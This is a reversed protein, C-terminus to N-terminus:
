EISRRACWAYFGQYVSNAYHEAFRRLRSGLLRRPLLLGVLVLIGIELQATDFAFFPDPPPTIGNSRLAFLLAFKVVVLASLGTGITLSAIIGRYLGYIGQFVEARQGAHEQSILEHCLQFAESRRRRAAGGPVEETALSLVFVAQIKRKLSAKFDATYFPDDDRLLKEAMTGGWGAERRSEELNGVAQTLNGLCYSVVFLIAVAGINDIEVTFRLAFFSSLFWYLVILTVFGPAFYGAMDYFNFKFEM